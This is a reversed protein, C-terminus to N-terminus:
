VHSLEKSVTVSSEVSYERVAPITEGDIQMEVPRDFEVSVSHGRIVKFIKTYKVHNGKFIKPFVTLLRLRSKCPVIVVSLEREANSRNQDPTIKMGGGFYKGLMTPVMWVNRYEETKGDVTVKANLTKFKYLLGKLAISTYNPPKGTKDRIINGQSCCWGDIGFGVGNLFRYSTGNVYLTPLDKIYGNIQVLDDAETEVVDNIFDNGTGGAFCYIPFPYNRDEISNVFRNLTGDGGVLVFRDGEGIKDLYAQKDDVTIASVLETEEGPFREEIKNKINEIGYHAGATANYMVYVM